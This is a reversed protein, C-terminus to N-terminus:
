PIAVSPHNRSRKHPEDVPWSPATGRELRRTLIFALLLPIIGGVGFSMDILQWGLPLERISGAILALPIIAICAIMGWQLVWVNRIPDRLPGIFALAIILHAFALWDTGYAVFPYAGYTTDLAESVRDVWASFAPIVNDLGTGHLTTAAFGLEPRLPFATIGSVILGIMLVVIWVRIWLLTRARSADQVGPQSAEASRPINDTM